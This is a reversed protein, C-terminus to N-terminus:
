QVASERRANVNPAERQSPFREAVSIILGSLVIFAIGVFALRDPLESFVIQGFVVATVLELYALPSLVAAEAYRFAAIVMFHCIASVARRIAILLLEEETPWSWHLVAFPTLLLAGFVCQFRLADVPPTTSAAMRTTVLYGAFLAGSLVALLSGFRLDAGPRVIFYAGILGTIAAGLRWVTIKEGLLRAGLVAAIVPGLFYGGFATALPIRTIAFFFSTM